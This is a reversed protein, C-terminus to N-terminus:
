QGDAEYADHTMAAPAGPLSDWSDAASSLTSKCAPLAIISPAYM